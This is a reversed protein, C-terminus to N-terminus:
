DDPSETGLENIRKEVSKLDEALEHYAQRLAEEKSRDVGICRGDKETVETDTWVEFAGENNKIVNIM